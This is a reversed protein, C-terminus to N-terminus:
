RRAPTRSGRGAAPRLEDPSGLRFGADRLGDLLAPLSLVTQEHIDHLLVIGRGQTGSQALVRRAISGPVPDAWDMSDINWMVSRMQMAAIRDLLHANRAGYPPRFLRPPSGNIAALLANTSAVERGQEDGDLGPLSRHSYSHNAVVHGAEIIARTLDALQSLAPAEGGDARGLRRGVQFFVVRIGRPKLIELVRRTHRPHPGDDFTLVITGQPLEHGLVESPHAGRFRGAATPGGEKLIADKDHTSRLKRLYADWERRDPAAGRTRTSLERDFTTRISGVRALARATLGALDDLGRARAEDQLAELVDGFALRDGDHLAAGDLIRAVFETARARGREPEARLAGLLTQTTQELLQDRRAGLTRAVEMIREHEEQAARAEADVLVMLKRHTSVIEDLPLPADQGAAGPVRVGAALAGSLAVCLPVAKWPISGPM